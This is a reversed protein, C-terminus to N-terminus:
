KGLGFEVDEVWGRDVFDDLGGDDGAGVVRAPNNRVDEGVEGGCVRRRLQPEVGVSVFPDEVVGSACHAGHVDDVGADSLVEDDEAGREARLSVGAQVGDIVIKMDEDTLLPGEQRAGELHFPVHWPGHMVERAE